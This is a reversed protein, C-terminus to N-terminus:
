GDTHRLTHAPLSPAPAGQGAAYRRLDLGFPAAALLATIRDVPDDLALADLEALRQPTRRYRAPACPDLVRGGALTRSAAADRLVVRDGHWAGIPQQLVLQALGTAGPPLPDAGQLIALTGPTDSAGVHVHVHMGSRLAQTEAHWLTLQVDIRDGALAVQPTTLWQGREFADKAVGSLAVACRQGAVAHEVARNQAHLSRVRVRVAQPSPTLALEDGVRVAGAHITGTVVTG